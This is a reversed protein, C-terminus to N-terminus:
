DDIAIDHLGYKRLGAGIACKFAVGKGIQATNSRAPRDQEQGERGFSGPCKETLDRHVGDIARKIPPGM